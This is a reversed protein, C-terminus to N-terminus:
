DSSATMQESVRSASGLRGPPVARSATRISSDSAVGQEVENAARVRDVRLSVDYVAREVVAEPKAELSCCRANARGVVPRSLARAPAAEKQAASLESCGQQLSIVTM